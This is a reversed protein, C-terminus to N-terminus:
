NKGPVCRIVEGIHEDGNNLQVKVKQATGVVHRNTAIVGGRDILVGSGYLHGDNSIGVVADVVHDFLDQAEFRRPANKTAGLNLIKDDALPIIIITSCNPCNGQKGRFKEPVNFRKGCACQIKIM